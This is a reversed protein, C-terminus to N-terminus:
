ILGKMQPTIVALILCKRHVRICVHSCRSSEIFISHFANRSAEEEHGIHCFRLAGYKILCVCSLLSSEYKFMEDSSNLSSSSAFWVTMGLNLKNIGMNKSTFLMRLHKKYDFM